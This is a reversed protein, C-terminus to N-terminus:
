FFALAYLAVSAVAGVVSGVAGLISSTGEASVASAFQSGVTTMFNNQYNALTGLLNSTTNVDTAGTSNVSTIGANIAQGLLTQANLLINNNVPGIPGAQTVDPFFLMYPPLNGIGPLAIGSPINSM